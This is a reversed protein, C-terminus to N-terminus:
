GNAVDQVFDRVFNGVPQVSAKRAPRVQAGEGRVISMSPRAVPRTKPSMVHLENIMAGPATTM